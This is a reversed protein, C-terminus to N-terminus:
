TRSEVEQKVGAGYVQIVVDNEYAAIMIAGGAESRFAFHGVDSLNPLIPSVDYGHEHKLSYGLWLAITDWISGSGCEEIEYGFGGLDQIYASLREWKDEAASRYYYTNVEGTVQDYLEFGGGYRGFDPIQEAEYGSYFATDGTETKEDFDVAYYATVEGVIEFSIYGFGGIGWATGWSNIFKFAGLSDDWGVLCIAHGGDNVGSTDDYVPNEPNIIFIEPYCPVGVVVGGYAIIAKKIGTVGQVANWDEIRHPYAIEALGDPPISTYDAPDYPMDALFVSGTDKLIQLARVISMGNDAGDNGQNYVYSPSCLTTEDYEWSHDLKEQASHLSYATAWAACSGQAGQNGPAPYEGSLDLKEPLTENSSSLVKTKESTQALEDPSPEKLGLSYTLKDGGVPTDAGVSCAALALVTLLALALVRKKM